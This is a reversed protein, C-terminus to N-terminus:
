APFIAQDLGKAGKAEKEPLRYNGQAVDPSLPFNM